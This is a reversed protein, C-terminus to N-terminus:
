LSLVWQVLTVADEDSLTPNPPMPVQGWNGTGGNKVRDVLMEEAAADDKYKAAIEIFAPGLIKKDVTHCSLCNNKGALEESATAITTTVM